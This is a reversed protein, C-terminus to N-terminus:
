ACPPDPATERLQLGPNGADMEVAKTRAKEGFITSLTLLNVYDDRRQTKAPVKEPCPLGAIEQPTPKQSL